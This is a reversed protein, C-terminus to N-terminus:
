VKYIDKVCTILKAFPQRKPFRNWRLFQTLYSPLLDKSKDYQRRLKRKFRFLINEINFQTLVTADGPDVLSHQHLAVVQQIIEEQFEETDSCAGLRRTQCEGATLFYGQTHKLCTVDHLWTSFM